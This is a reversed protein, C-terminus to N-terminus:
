SRDEQIEQQQCLLFCSLSSFYHRRFYGLRLEVSRLRLEVSRIRLDFFLNAGGWIMM